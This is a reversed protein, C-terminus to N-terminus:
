AAESAPDGAIRTHWMVRPVTLDWPVGRHLLCRNDWLVADGANWDYYYTRPSQCAFDMLDKLLTESEDESLGPIGYAHRGILLSKRGTEPHVKVLPRLPATDTMPPYLTAGTNVGASIAHGMKKQSHFISHHASLNQIRDRMAPSLADYAARMDAWGTQTGGPPIIDASFVAGKAHIDRYSSDTHWQNNGLLMNLFDPEKEMTLLTGDRKVNSIGIMEIELPGFRRAFAMQEERSLHQGPFILLAYDLWAKYLARWTADDIANLKIGRVIAGFTADVPEIEFDMRAERRDGM